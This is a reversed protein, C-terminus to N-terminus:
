ELPMGISVSPISAWPSFYQHLDMTSFFTALSSSVIILGDITEENALHYAINSAAESAIPSGLRSGIFSITGFNRLQAEQEMAHWLSAQYEDDLTATFIGICQGFTNM